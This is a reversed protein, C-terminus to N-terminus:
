NVKYAFIGKYDKTELHNSEFLGFTDGSKSKVYGLLVDNQLPVRSPVNPILGLMLEGQYNRPTLQKEPQNYYTYMGVLFVGLLLLGIVALNQTSNKM